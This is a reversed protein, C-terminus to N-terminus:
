EEKLERCQYKYILLNNLYTHINSLFLVVANLTEFLKFFRYDGLKRKNRIPYYQINGIDEDMGGIRLTTHKLQLVQRM